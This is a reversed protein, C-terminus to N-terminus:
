DFIRGGMRLYNALAMSNPIIKDNEIDFTVNWSSSEIHNFGGYVNVIEGGGQPTGNGVKEWKTEDWAIQVSEIKSNKSKVFKVIEEEHEKLYALQKARPSLFLNTEQALWAGGGFVVISLVLLILARKKM